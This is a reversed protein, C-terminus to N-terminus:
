NGENIGKESPEEGTGFVGLEALAVFSPVVRRLSQLIATRDQNYGPKATVNTTTIRMTVDPPVPPRPSLVEHVSKPKPRLVIGAPILYWAKAPIVYIAFLDVKDPDYREEGSGGHRLRCLYGYGKRATTSKVQVRIVGGAHEVAVDYQLSDGWPKLVHYGHEAAAAMFLLEAWEGRQKFTKFNEQDHM